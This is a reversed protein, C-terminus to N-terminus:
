DGVNNQIKAYEFTSSGKKQHVGFGPYLWGGTPSVSINDSLLVGNVFCKGVSNNLVLCVTYWQNYEWDGIATADAVSSTNLVVWKNDTFRTCVTFGNTGDGISVFTGYGDTSVPYAQTNYFKVLILQDSSGLDNAFYGQISGAWDANATLVLGTSDLSAGGRNSNVSWGNDSPLGMTYDWECTWDGIKTGDAFFFEYISGEIPLIQNNPYALVTVWNTASQYKSVLASPVYLSGGTGGSSFPSNTFANTNSLAVLSSKRIIFTSFKSCNSFMSPRTNSSGFTSSVDVALLNICGQFCATYIGTSDHVWYSISRCNYFTGAGPSCVYPLTLSSLKTCGSFVTDHLRTVNPFDITTLNTCNQFASSGIVTAEPLSISILSSCAEFANIHITEASPLSVDTLASCMRFASSGIISANSLHVSTLHINGYFALDKVVMANPFIVTTDSAQRDTVRYLGCNGVITIASNIYTGGLTGEIIENTKDERASGEVVEGDAGLATKGAMLTGSSVTDNTVDVLTRNNFIVKAVGAM